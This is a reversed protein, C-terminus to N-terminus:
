QHNQNRLQSPKKKQHKLYKNKKKNQLPQSKSRHNKQNVLPRKDQSHKLKNKVEQLKETLHFLEPAIKKARRPLPLVMKMAM